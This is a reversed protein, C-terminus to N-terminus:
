FPLKMGPPLKMGGTLKGMEEQMHSEVKGKADNAAAVILDELMEVDNPDVLSPDIKIKRVDGKGNLTVTVLGGGAAGSVETEAMRAQMEAMKAQMEQAQKLMNGLNKM